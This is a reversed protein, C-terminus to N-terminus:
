NEPYYIVWVVEHNKSDTVTIQANCAQALSLDKNLYDVVDEIGKKWDNDRYSKDKFASVNSLIEAGGLKDEYYIVYGKAGSSGSPAHDSALIKCSARQSPSLSNVYETIHDKLNKSWKEEWEKYKWESM